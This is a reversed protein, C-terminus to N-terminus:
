MLTSHEMTRYTVEADGNALFDILEVGQMFSHDQNSVEYKWGGFRGRSFVRERELAPVIAALCMNRERFPTPYGHELRRHWLSVVRSRRDVLHARTLARITRDVIDRGAVPRGPHESIEALLSWHREDPVNHPSYHSLVTVRYYPSGSDPFYIWCKGAIPTPMAGRLGIGVVHVSTHRLMKAAREVAPALPHAIACLRDLPITSILTDYALRRGDELTVERASVDVGGVPSNLHLVGTPLRGALSRWIAGTGGRLPYRFWCNPGWSADDDGREMTREVRELTPVAVREAIWECSLSELPYRWVKLNYPRLFLENIGEGFTQVLWDAFNEPPKRANTAGAARLGSLARDRDAPDLRHLNNQFPYPVFRRKFWIWSERRHFLWEHGLAEEVARDYYPYHSFHVHGGLDWTFGHSDRFSSALGGPHANAELLAFDNFGLRQLRYAAGLATPGAGLIVFQRAGAVRIV